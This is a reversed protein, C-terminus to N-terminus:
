VPPKKGWFNSPMVNKDPYASDVLIQYQTRVPLDKNEYFLPGKNWNRLSPLTLTRFPIGNALRIIEVDTLPENNEDVVILKVHPEIYVSGMNVYYSNPFNITFSFKGNVIQAVGRNPSGEYAIDETPFPLGSGSFNSNFTPPNCASYKLFSKGYDLGSVTGSIVCCNNEKHVVKFGVVFSSENVTKYEPCMLNKHTEFIQKSQPDNFNISAFSNDSM